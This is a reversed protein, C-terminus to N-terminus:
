PPSCPSSPSSSPSSSSSTSSTVETDGLSHLTHIGQQRAECFEKLQTEWEVQQAERFTDSLQASEAM